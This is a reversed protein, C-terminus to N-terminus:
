RVREYPYGHSTDQSQLKRMVGEERMGAGRRKCKCGGECRAEEVDYITAMARARTKRFCHMYKEIERRNRGNCDGM